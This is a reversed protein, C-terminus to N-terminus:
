RRPPSRWSPSIRTSSRIADGSGRYQAEPLRERFSKTAMRARRKRAWLYIGTASFGAIALGLLTMVVRGFVGAIRGSHLPFQAQMFIDGASGKGPQLVSALAGTQGDLYIWPNGLGIDGHSNGPAHFGVGYLDFDPSYFVSGPPNAIDLKVAQRRALEVAQGASLAPTAPDNLERPTRQAFADKSLPSIANVIPRVVENQLNMSVSTVAVILLLGFLWVGSSRHFDFTLRHGGAKWRFALSKRWAGVSPFSIWIAVLSDIVWVIGVVGMLLVGTEIGFGQPLHLSYHLKYLFPLLNEPELSIEGWFRKGQIEGTVPDVAVQNYDVRHPAGAGPDFRPSVSAIWTEGPEVTLPMFTITVRPDSAEVMSALEAAPKIPGSGNSKARYLHPNLAADLEHDWSIIAGTLGAVMLFVATALGLWRHIAVLVLRM